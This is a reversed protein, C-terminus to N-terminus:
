SINNLREWHEQRKDRIQGEVEYMETTTREITATRNGERRWRDIDRSMKDIRRQKKEIDQCLRCVDPEDLTQYVLKMGCTEGTRYEKNCQQRFKGWKWFGCRWRSMEYYCM